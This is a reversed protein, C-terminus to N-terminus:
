ATGSSSTMPPASGAATAGPRPRSVRGCRPVAPGPGAPTVTRRHLEEDQPADLQAQQGPLHGGRDAPHRVVAGAQLGLALNEGPIVDDARVAARPDVRDSRM